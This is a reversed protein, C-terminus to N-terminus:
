YQPKDKLWKSIVWKEGAKPPLGTHLSNELLEGNSAVNDFVLADGQKGKFKWNLKPFSTEGESFADNLYILFTRTRQGGLKLHQAHATHAPNFYDYHDEYSQGAKYHLVSLAEGHSVPQALFTSIKKNIKQIVLDNELPYFSM